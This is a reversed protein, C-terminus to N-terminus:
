VGDVHLRISQVFWAVVGYVVYCMCHLIYYNAFVRCKGEPSDGNTLWHTDAHRIRGGLTTGGCSVIVRSPVTGNITHHTWCGTPVSAWLATFSLHSAGMRVVGCRLLFNAVKRAAYTHTDTAPVTAPKPLRLGCCRSTRM